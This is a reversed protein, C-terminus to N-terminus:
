VELFRRMLTKGLASQATLLRDAQIALEEQSTKWHTGLKKPGIGRCWGEIIPKTAEFHFQVAYAFDGYRFAQNLGNVESTALLVAERPLEFTDEHFQLVPVETELPAVVHDLLGESTLKLASFSANPQPAPTVQAGLVRAMMQCGLCIGLTPLERELAQTMLGSSPGLFPYVESQDVNMTGGLVVLAGLDSPSPWDTCRWAEIM